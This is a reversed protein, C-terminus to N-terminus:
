RRPQELVTAYAAGGPLGAAAFAADAFHVGLVETHQAGGRRSPAARGQTPISPFLQSGRDDTAHMLGGRPLDRAISARWRAERAPGAVVVAILPVSYYPGQLWPLMSAHELDISEGPDVLERVSVRPVQPHQPRELLDPQRVFDHPHIMRAGVEIAVREARLVHETLNRRDVVVAHHHGLGARNEEVERALAALQHRAVQGAFGLHQPPAEG